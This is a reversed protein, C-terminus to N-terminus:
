QCRVDSNMRMFGIIGTPDKVEVKIKGSKKLAPILDNTPLEWWDMEGSQMAGAATADDPITIWEVRDVNVRKPGATWEATGGERPRYGEFREYVARSGVVREDKKFRFPGSGVMETVQKFPDTSALREPMIALFPTSVKGLAFPLLPFPKKLRFRITRDDPASLEDTAALLSSGLADRAGWRRISAVCDRALVPEGDHFRLGDRLTLTWLLGGNETMVGEVMQPQPQYKGDIGFLTDFVMMGHNRSVYATSWIPDLVTVDAQPIFRIVRAGEARVVSPLALAAGAALGTAMFERRRM